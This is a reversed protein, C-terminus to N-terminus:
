PPVQSASLLDGSLKYAEFCMDQFSYLVFVHKTAHCQVRCLSRTGDRLICHCHLTAYTSLQDIYLKEFAVSELTDFEKM